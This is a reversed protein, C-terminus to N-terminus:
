LEKTKIISIKLEMETTESTRTTKLDFSLGFLKSLMQHQLYVM